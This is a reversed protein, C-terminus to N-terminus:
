PAAQSLSIHAFHERTMHGGHAIARQFSMGAVGPLAVDALACVGQGNGVSVDNVGQAEHSAVEGPDRAHGAGLYLLPVLGIGTLEHTDCRRVVHSHASLQLAARGCRDMNASDRPCAGAKTHLDEPSFARQDGSAADRRLAALHQPNLTRLAAMLKLVQLYRLAEDIHRGVERGAIWEVDPLKVSEKGLRYSGSLVACRREIDATSRCRNM